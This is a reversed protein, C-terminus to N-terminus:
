ATTVTGTVASTATAGNTGEAILRFKYGTATTLGTINYTTSSANPTDATISGITAATWVSFPSVSKEATVTFPDGAGTPDTASVTATTPGTQTGVPASGPWVPVGGIATWGPGSTWEAYLAPILENSSPNNPDKSVFYPDPLVMYGLEGADPDTKSRRFSGINNLKCLSYAEATYLYRGAKKRAFFLIIQYEPGDNDVPKGIVFNETGPDEILSNGSDDQLALNMRLRKMSPKLTEVGTFNIAINEATLDSDFPANSQLIMQNDNTVDPAREPGGDETLAGILLFGENPDPNTIWEGNVRVFAWLDNRPQGDLAFPSWNRTPPSGAAWPSINTAAGRNMRIAIAALGGRTNFRSDVNALGAARWDTGTSPIAV